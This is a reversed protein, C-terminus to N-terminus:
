VEGEPVCQLGDGNSAGGEETRGLLVITESKSLDEAM